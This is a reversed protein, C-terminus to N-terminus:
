LFGSLSVSVSIVDNVQSVSADNRVGGAEELSATVHLRDHRRRRAHFVVPKCREVREEEDFRVAIGDDRAVIHIRGNRGM